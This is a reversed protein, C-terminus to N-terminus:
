RVRFYLTHDDLSCLIETVNTSARWIRQFPVARDSSQWEEFKSAPESVGLQNPLRVARELFQAYNYNTIVVTAEM